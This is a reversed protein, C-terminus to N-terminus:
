MQHHSVHDQIYAMAQAILPSLQRNDSLQLGYQSIFSDLLTYVLAKAKLLSAIDQTGFLDRLNRIIEECNSLILIKGIQSLIDGHGPTPLLIHFFVKELYECDFGFDYDSPILYVNGPRMEIVETPTRLYGCGDTVLYLRTFFNRANDSFWNKGLQTYGYVLIDANLHRLYPNEHRM